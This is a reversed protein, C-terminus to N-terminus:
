VLKDYYTNVLYLCGVAMFLLPLFTTNVFDVFIHVDLVASFTIMSDSVVRGITGILTALLGSNIFCTNLKSPTVQAMISTTVGELIITGSFIVSLFVIYVIEGKGWDYPFEKDKTFMKGVEAGSLELEKLHDIDIPDFKWYTSIGLIDYYLGQYNFIGFCGFIIFWISLKMIRRESVRRSFIEVVFNAPLVLAGLSAVLFGASSANWGFYRRVVMSCSSILVEDALEIYGFLLLTIPLGPNILVLSSTSVIEGWFGPEKFEGVPPSLSVSDTSQTSFLSSLSSNSDRRQRFSGYDIKLLRNTEADTNDQDGDDTKTANIRDPECFFFILALLQMFWLTAMVFGPSTISNFIIGGAPTFPLHFDVLLDRGATDDLIGAILPGISMGMAGAGVFFASARTIQKFSVCTSIMQRNVVEASGFGCLFRGGIAMPMSRYSIALAYVLNGVLPCIASFLLVSKFSSKTYWFSYLLAAFIASFSSVGILTAGMAGDSGLIVAYHNATPAVIYYNITYLLISLLNLVMSIMNIGGWANEEFGYEKKTGNLAKQSLTHWDFEEEELVEMAYKTVEQLRSGKDQNGLQKNRWHAYQPIWDAWIDDLQDLDLFLMTTPRFNLVVDMARMESGEIGGLSKTGVNIMAKRSLFEKFPQNVIESNKRIVYSAQVISQFRFHKLERGPDTDLLGDTYHFHVLASQLSSHIATLSQSSSIQQLHFDDKGGMIYYYDPKNLKQITKNYKKLVKRVGITNVGVFQILFLLEIGLLLYMELDDDLREKSFGTYYKRFISNKDPFLDSVKITDDDRFRLHGIAESLMGQTKLTFLSIKEIEEGLEQFFRDRIQDSGSNYHTDDIEKEAVLRDTEREKLSNELEYLIRKLKNYDLYAAEWGRRRCQKLAKGFAVM